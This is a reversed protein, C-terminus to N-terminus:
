INESEALYWKGCYPDVPSVGKFESRGMIKDMVAQNYYKNSDYANIYTSVMPADFLHYPNAVSIMLMPVESAHWPSDDGRGCVLNWNLRVTTNNSINQMSVIYVYLDYANKTEEVSRYMEEILEQKEQPLQDKLSVENLTVSLTRNRLVVEFGEAEFLSKWTKALPSEPIVNKQIVNLYIRPYKKPSIPLVGKKDRVLTIADEAVQKAWAKFQECGVQERQAPDILRGEQKKKELNLSVKLALIRTVAEEIREMSVIGDEIGKRLFEVDEDLFKNFLFMDCGCAVAWPVAKAREMAATFGLMLTSDTITVGNFGLKTRLLGTLIEKSLTAPRLLEKQSAQPNFKKVYAPQAIHGVMVSNAGQDILAKYIKGYSDDWEECSLTNVSTLLHQDREDVGDGPFHKISASLEYKQAAKLYEGAYAIIRDPDDGFTRVNTIPNRFERDIDVVPAFAWNVGVAAGEACSVEAMYKAHEINDTAAVAMPKGMSTGERCIGNGGCELNAALLLPIKALEQLRTHVKIIDDVGAPRFLVGGVHLDETLHRLYADDSREGLPLFIQGIKEELTMNNLTTQVWEIKEDSLYFPRAKLDIM